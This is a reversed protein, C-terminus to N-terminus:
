LFLGDTIKQHASYVPSVLDQLSLAVQNIKSLPQYTFISLEYLRM